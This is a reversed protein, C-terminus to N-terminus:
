RQSQLVDGAWLPQQHPMHYGFLLIGEEIAAKTKNQQLPKRGLGMRATREPRITPAPVSKSVTSNPSAAPQSPEPSATALASRPMTKNQAFTLVPEEILAAPRASRTTTEESGRAPPAVPPWAPRTEPKLSHLPEAARPEPPRRPLASNGAHPSVIPEPMITEAIVKPPAAPVEGNRLMVPKQSLEPYKLSPFVPAQAQILDEIRNDATRIIHEAPPTDLTSQPSLAQKNAKVVPQLKVMPPDPRDILAAITPERFTQEKLLSVAKSWTPALETIQRTAGASEIEVAPTVKSLDVSQSSGTISLAAPELLVHGDKRYNILATAYCFAAAFVAAAAMRRKSLTAPISPVEGTNPLRTSARLSKWTFTGPNPASIPESSLDERPQTLRDSEATNPEAMTISATAMEERRPAPFDPAARFETIRRFHQCLDHM